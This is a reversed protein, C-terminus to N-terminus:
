KFKKLPSVNARVYKVMLEIHEYDDCNQEFFREWIARALKKDDTLLGEDYAIIAYQFQQSLMEVQKTVVSQRQPSLKKARFLTDDWMSQVIINRIYVRHNTEAMARVMLMWIHIETILFWTNFSNENQFTRHFNLYDIQTTAIEYLFLSRAGAVQLEYFM